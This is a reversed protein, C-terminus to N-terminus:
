SLGLLKRKLLKRLDHEQNTLERSDAARDLHYILEMAIALQLRINGIWRDSWSQLARATAHLKNDLIIFPNGM